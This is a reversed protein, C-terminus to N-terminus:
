ELHPPGFGEGPWTVRRSRRRAFVNVLILGFV